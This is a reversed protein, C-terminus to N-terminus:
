PSPEAGSVRALRGERDLRYRAFDEALFLTGHYHAAAEAAIDAISPSKRPDAQYRPSFHTLLLNPMGQREAFSAISAASSHKIESGVRAAVVTTYTAEHVLLQAGECLGALLEPSDNDGGVVIRRAPDPHVRYDRSALTRGEFVVDEGAKLAGWLPGRPIGERVLKDTDLRAQRKLESFRYGFSPVRHSLTAAEVVIEDDQWSTLSEVAIFRLPFPLFLETLRCTAELWEEIAAPAVIVLEESRGSMAACALLGPLGYSHDGHVHTIFIARLGNVSMPLHLLQHQTAEGCDVLYWARGQGPLLGLGSVNRKKTPM